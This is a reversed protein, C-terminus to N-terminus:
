VLDQSERQTTGGLARRTRKSSNEAGDVCMRSSVIGSGGSSQLLTQPPAPFAGEM